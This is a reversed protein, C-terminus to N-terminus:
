GYVKELEFTQLLKNKNNFNGILRIPKGPSEKILTPTVLIKSEEALFPEELVDVIFIEYNSQIEEECFAKTDTIAKESSKTGSTVYLYFVFKEM